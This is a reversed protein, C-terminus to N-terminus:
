LEKIGEYDQFKGSGIIGVQPARTKRGAKYASLINKPNSVAKEGASHIDTANPDFVKRL